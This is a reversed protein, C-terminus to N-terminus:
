HARRAETNPEVAFLEATNPLDLEDAILMRERETPTEWGRAIASLRDESVGSGYAISRQSRGTRAIAIRLQVRL